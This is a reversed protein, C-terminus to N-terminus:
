SIRYHLFIRNFYSSAMVYHFTCSRSDASQMGEPDMPNVIRSFVAFYIHTM